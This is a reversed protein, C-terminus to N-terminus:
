RVQITMTLKEIIAPQATVWGLRLGATPLWPCPLTFTLSSLRSALPGLAFPM